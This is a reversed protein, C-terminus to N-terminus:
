EEIAVLPTVSLIHGSIECRRIVENLDELRTDVYVHDIDNGDAVVILHTAKRFIEVEEVM